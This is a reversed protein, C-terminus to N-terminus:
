FSLRRPDTRCRSAKQLIVEADSSRPPRSTNAILPDKKAWEDLVPQMLNFFKERDEFEYFMVGKQKLRGITLKEEDRTHLVYKTGIKRCTDLVIKQIDPPLADFKKKSYFFLGPWLYHGTLTLHKATEWVNDAEISGVNFEVADIM